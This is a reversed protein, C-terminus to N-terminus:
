KKSFIIRPVMRISFLLRIRFKCDTLIPNKLINGHDLSCHLIEIKEAKLLNNHVRLGTKSM